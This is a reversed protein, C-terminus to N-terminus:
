VRFGIHAHVLLLLLLLLCCRFYLRVVLPAPHQNAKNGAPRLGPPSPSWSEGARLKLGDMRGTTFSQSGPM